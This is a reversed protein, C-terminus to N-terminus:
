HLSFCRHSQIATSLTYNRHTLRTHTHLLRVVGLQHLPTCFLVGVGGLAQLDALHGQLVMLQRQLLLLPLDGPVQAGELLGAEDVAGVLVLVDDIFDGLYRAASIIGDFSVM